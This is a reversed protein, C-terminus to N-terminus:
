ARARRARADLVLARGGLPARVPNCDLEALLPQDAALWAVRAVLDALAERDAAPAGRWGDLQASGRLRRWLERVTREGAPALAVARDAWLEAEVGGIGALVVPGFVEDVAAGVILEVGPAAMEQVLVAEVRDCAGSRRAAADIERFAAAAAEPSGCGLRVGGVESKHPIVPRALKVAVPAALAAQAAAAEGASVALRSRPMSIGYAALLAEVEAPALWSGEPVAELVGRAAARDLGPPRRPPDAPRRAAAGAQAAHAVAHAAGEPFTMWPVFRGDSPRRSVEEGCSCGVVTVGAGALREAVARLPAAGRGRLPAAAVILADVEGSEVILRGAALLDGPRAAAGLDVPNSTAAAAPVAARLAEALPPSLRPVELGHGECADAALIAPGGVNAVVAIRRGAPLPQASILEGAELLEEITDVRVIGALDFLADTSPEDAALAATHSGGGRRGAPGRGAKLAVIPTTRCVARALRAFRRPDGFGELYLLVVRTREDRDWWALLDAASVDAANGLSVFASLGIGRRACYAFAALGLGGSQSALAISGQPPSAPAFTADFGADGAGSWVGLCNPGVVRIGATGAVHLLEEELAAGAAGSESFGASLVVLARVGREAAERAVAPVGAAPVAVVAMDVPEPVAALSPAAPLGAVLSASRNVPTVRVSTAREALARFVAGGVSHPDRSAGVVAISSPSLIPALSAAASSAFRAMAADELGDDVHTSLRILVEGPAVEVELDCGLHRFVERMRRNAPMVLAWLADLGDRRAHDLLREILGTGIGLGQWRDAVALSLEAEDEGPRRDYRAVAVAEGAGPGALAVLALGDPGPPAAMAAAEEPRLGGRAIGFRMARSAPSLGDILAVIRDRDDARTPRVVVSRGDATLLREEAPPPAGALMTTM